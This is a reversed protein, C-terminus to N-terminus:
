RVQEGSVFDLQDTKYSYEGLHKFEFRLMITRDPEIGLSSDTYFTEQYSATLVFCEDAYKLTIADSLRMDADIDYRMSASLTWRDSLKVGLTGVIDQQNDVIGLLPDAAAYSYVAGGFVTGFNFNVGLDERRLAMTKEDFRSQSIVRFLDTPALYVGLVYDSRSTELGSAPNFIPNCDADFGAVIRKHLVGNADTCTKETGSYANDGAIHFSQGALVRAYGGSNAQFTYQVGVNARSGTELRDYGSFKNVDFLNTDDFVLSRADENPLRRQDTRANRGIIQGIPELVHSVGPSNAVWPYAVMVGGAANGRVVTDDAVINGTAPDVYDSVQIADGRVEGFPTYTIGIADTLRRRWKFETTARTQDQRRGLNRVDDRGFQLVNSTWTLEGGLVGDLVYNHDVIPHVVSNADNTDSFTLGGFHYMKASFYNRESLGTLYIQNVRDTLLINDLKYFRRFTSDSELIADWGLSWWSGLSFKGKTEISGRWGDLDDRNPTDVSLNGADQELAAFKIQYEGEALRQRWTGQWLVGQKSTYMPNFLFDYSPNLAFYYPVESTFGLTDSVSVGPLLFGSRRKVSPDAHQFYPLYVIPVGLVEFQADQYTISAAQADHIIRAASICWLPPTGGDSKCPSFKGNRFETVNGDRRQASEAAIRTDDRSIASLQQVFGDRFDSTLTYRDARIINGNPDKVYVNGAAELTDAARDYIVEDATLINNDFFIEVNGRAVVRNGSQDYVLQDAQLHLPKATDPRNLKGFPGGPQTPFSSPPKKSQAGAPVPALVLAAVAILM